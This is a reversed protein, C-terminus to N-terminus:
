EHKSFNSKNFYDIITCQHTILKTYIHSCINTPGQQHINCQRNGFLAVYVCWCPGVLIHLWMVVSNIVCWHVM